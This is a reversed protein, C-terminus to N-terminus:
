DMEPYPHNIVSDSIMRKFESQSWGHHERNTYVVKQPLDEGTIKKGVYDTGLIRVDPNVEKILEILDLETTYTKVEDVYRLALLIKTRDEVSLIPKLKQPREISPDTQLFVYLYDCHEKADEFMEIYGPHIIDFGGALFGTIGKDLSM